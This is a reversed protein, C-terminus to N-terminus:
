SGGSSAFGGGSNGYGFGPSQQPARLGGGSDGSSDGSPTGSQQNTTASAAATGLTVGFVAALALGAGVAWWTAQGAMRRGRDRADIRARTRDPTTM